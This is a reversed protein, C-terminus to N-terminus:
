HCFPAAPDKQCLYAKMVDNQQKLEYFQQDKENKLDQVAKILIATLKDYYVMYRDSKEDHYVLEPYYKNIEQAIVGIQPKQFEDISALYRFRIVDLKMIIPLAEELPRVDHKLRIDSVGTGTAWISAGNDYLVMNRDSQLALYYNTRQSSRYIGTSSRIDGTVDVAYIPATMNIGVAGTPLITLPNLWTTGNWYATFFQDQAGTYADGRAGIQWGKNTSTSSMLAGDDKTVLEISVDQNAATGPTRIAMKTGGYSASSSTSYVDFYTAPATTGIGVSGSNYYANSNLVSWPSGGALGGGAFKQVRIAGGSVGPAVRNQTEAGYVQYNYTGAAPTDIYFLTHNGEWMHSILVDNSGTLATGNRALWAQTDTGSPSNVGGAQLSVFGSILVVEGANVPVSVQYVAANGNQPVNGVLASTSSYAATSSTGSVQNWGGNYVYLGGVTTDFVVTGAAPSAIANRQTTTMRPPLFGSTTSSVDLIGAPATTGIGVNGNAALITMSSTGVGNNTDFILKGGSTRLVVDGAAAAGAYQGAGEAAALDGRETAGNYLRFAGPSGNDNMRISGKVELQDNPSYTGIGVNGGNLSFQTAAFQIPELVSNTDNVSGVYLTGTNNTVLFHENSAVRVDLQGNPATTGIGVNGVSTIRMAEVGNTSIALTGAGPHWLGTDTDGNFTFTPTGVAGSAAAFTGGATLAGNIASIPINGIVATSLTGGVVNAAPVNGVVSTALTGGSTAIDTVPVPGLQATSITGTLSSFPISIATSGANTLQGQANVTFWPHYNGVSGYTTPNVTTNAIALTGATTISGGTLGTGATVNTVTGTGAPWSSQCTGNICLQTGNVKGAVDLMYGPTTTGIGVSGASSIVMRFASNADDYIYFGNPTQANASGRAGLEWHNGNPWFDISARSSTAQSSGDIELLDPNSGSVQVLANGSPSTTGIGINGAGDIMLAETGNTSFALTGSGPLFMGTSPNSAFTHTPLAASGKYAAFTGGTTLAGAIASIPLTGIVATSLTGGVVNAAPLNGIVGTALTGGSTAIDNVPVPGLQATSITGTVSSFPISIATSGANTLQGQQNVAFWPIFNGVSGYTAAAVGTNAISLTGVTSIPGGTLGAGAVINTVSGGAPWSANCTGNICIQTGNIKGAVDLLYNPTTTGIGVSGGSNIRMRESSNTYFEMNDPTGSTSNDYHIQGRNPTGGSDGFNLYSASGSNGLIEIGGSGPAYEFRAVPNNGNPAAYVHFNRAPTTTGIGVNGTNNIRLAETGMTSFALTGTGPLWMGASLNSAFTHTPLAATGNAAAFTGGSTLAGAIASIPLNGIVATALTGGSTAISNVPVAGLEAASITGGTLSSFPITGLVSTALTGGVVNAAPVNGLEATSITGTLNASNISILMSGANTLQGEANVAFWPIYNGVSGYTSAVVGTTGLMNSGFTGSTIASAALNGDAITGAVTLQGEANVTFYPHYNGISGYTGAAVGTTGIINSGFTGTVISAPIAGLVSTALTGGSIAINGVPVTGLEATSITGTLNASSISISMSGANTLQGQANVAFWPIYNGVSGYTTATVGTTGLLNSGFTGNVISAPINGLLSTAFTGNVISAAPLNGIRATAFTGTGIDAADLIRFSPTGTVGNPAALVKNSAQTSWDLNITGYNTVPSNTIAFMANGTMGVDTVTGGGGAAGNITLTNGTTNVSVNGAGVINISGATTIQGQANVAFYPFANTTGYTAAVVGTTGLLNSGFTGTVISAPINGLLSTAFTGGVVNAAPLNGVVSTALTGGSTAINNVPVTGLQATNLTGANLVNANLGGIATSGASTLQGETNVAFWPIYNGVQGYTAATVGTTGLLNSGFTGNVSSAPINGLLSTAFTGGVINAAPLNGLRATAFTGTGIDAADLTRFSPTGSAGNPAALVKNSAQTSWDLNITGYNTVPSNTIAFMANGTMGVDTVTGGGGAAGNITLTNGTSNVTVNGTGVINISGASTIQGESNVAFYPFANTTGYTAAVVGTTGLLNSGFTGSVISAPINGLLATALTGGSTAINNVPVTGLQATNLTGANLVNANLGSIATSGALTLQGETNVAFWPIYNGVQGYTAATVGTTGLLNSGFTGSVISAPINGLLSTAFTGGVINAAPLNGVVATALTGGTTAINNVPVTGLQATNLTGANLVNANLGSIATSGALTLQGETNVAFWPIYNGVQGYPAATVGTTGLLNSGFTGAVISAPINGLLSTAFTGGVINAAPLNGLRATAFTGTGIDAADLTRFSPTGTAGNPAALVKNSAQTSWDLNITGYNTVPSNTIAFMTNGTMGVDTVTGGGGAAGNITLTNGTTNVSVNGSGVINISGATTIQGQANVAFYPFANTTGYTAAVVGTTGLLNSGFTGTVISAPINGLLSTAFTGGVINAAPLNGIVATSLTGGVVNAAPVNGLEATSITGTLNNFSLGSVSSAPITGVRATALTGTTITSGDLGGVATSGAATLQGQQNVTFSPIYNGVGGYSGSSVSTNAISLTGAGTISGGTLGLGATVNTVSGGSGTAAITVAGSNNTITVGAGPTLTNLSFTTGNGILIQGNGVTGLALGSGGNITPVVGLQASNLTGATLQNANLGPIDSAALTRFSPTGAGGSSPGAFVANQNANNLTVGFTGNTTISTPNVTFIGPMSLGVDTVSGGGGTAAITVAGSNNTISIGSGQTLTNLSFGGGTNGILLQGATALSGNLGTGGFATGLTGQTIQSAPLGPIDGVALQRFVPVGSSGSPAAFVYNQTQNNFDLNITGSGNVPSGTINFIGNGTMGVVGSGGGAVNAPAWTGGNFQLVQGNSPPTSLNLAVTGLGLARNAYLAFPVSSIPMSPLTNSGSGDNLNFSVSLYRTDGPNPSYSGLCGTGSLGSFIRSNDFVDIFSSPASGGLGNGSAGIQASVGGNNASLNINNQTEQWLVCGNPALVSFIFSANAGQAVSGDPRLVKAQYTLTGNGAFATAAMM